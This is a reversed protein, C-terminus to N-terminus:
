PSKGDGGSAPKRVVTLTAPARARPVGQQPKPPPPPPPQRQIYDPVLGTDRRRRDHERWLKWTGVALPVVVVIALLLFFCSWLEIPAFANGIREWGAVEPNTQSNFALRALGVWPVEGYLEGVVWDPHVIKSIGVAQDTVANTFANDGKTLFGSYAPRYANTPTYGYQESFGLAPFYIGANGFTLNTGDLWRMSYTALGSPEPHVDVWTIARHLITLNEPASDGDQLYAIVDGPRRYHHEGGDIWLEVEHPGDVARIFVLDGVDITGIRGYPTDYSAHMMSGSEVAVVPPWVGGTWAAIGGIVVAVILIAGLVDRLLTYRRLARRTERWAVEFRGARYARTPDAKKRLRM